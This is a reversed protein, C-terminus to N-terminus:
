APGLRYEDEVMADEPEPALVDSARHRVGLDELECEVGVGDEWQAVVGAADDASECLVQAVLQGHRYVNVRLTPTEIDYEGTM